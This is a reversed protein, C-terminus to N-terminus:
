QISKAHQNQEIEVAQFLTKINKSGFGLNGDRQIIELFLTMNSTITKTFAQYLYADNENDLLVQNVKLLGFNIKPNSINHSQIEYYADPITLFEIGHQKYNTIAGIINDTLFAIHQVGAGNNNKLYTAIQSNDSNSIAPEVFVFKVQRNNSEFVESNMGSTKTMVNEKRTVTFAFNKQYFERWHEIDGHPVCIALHDISKLQGVAHKHDHKVYSMGPINFAYNDVVLTHKVSGFTFICDNQEALNDMAFVIDRVGEGHQTLFNYIDGNKERPTSILIHIDNQRLLISKKDNFDGHGVVTFAFASKYFYVTQPLNWVVIEIYEIKNINITM